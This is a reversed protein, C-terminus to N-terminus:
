AAARGQTRERFEQVGDAAQLAQFYAEVESAEIPRSFHFGQLHTCGSLSVLEVLDKESIGEAVVQAGIRLAMTVAADFVARATPDDALDNILSRDLKLRDFPFSKMMSLSSYGTGFDDLAIRFGSNRLLDLTLLARNDREISLTETVELMIRQPRIDHSQCAGLLFACFGDQQLQVPSLNISMTLHRWRSLDALAREIIWAGLEIMSGNREAAPIFRGPSIAGMEPHHWRVLAEIETSREGIAHIPQYVMRLEDNLVAHTLDHELRRDLERESELEPCFLVARNRGDNKAAYLALDARDLLTSVETAAHDPGIEIVGASMTIAVNYPGLDIPQRMAAVLASVRASADQNPSLPICLAFEDGGVRAVIAQEGLIKGMRAGILRVLRDGASHGYDDNIHKFRDIDAVVLAMRPGGDETVVALRNGVQEIIARRNPLGTAADTFALNRVALANQRFTELPGALRQLERLSYDGLEIDLKGTALERLSRHLRRLAPLINFILDYALAIVLLATGMTALNVFWRWEQASHVLESFQETETHKAYDSIAAAATSMAENREHVAAIASSDRAGSAELAAIAGVHTDLDDLAFGPAELEHVPLGDLRLANVHEGIQIALDTLDITHPRASGHENHLHMNTAVRFQGVTDVLTEARQSNSTATRLAISRAGMDSTRQSTVVQLTVVCLVILILGGLLRTELSFVTKALFRKVFSRDPGTM